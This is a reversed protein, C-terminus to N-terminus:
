PVTVLTPKGSVKLTISAALKDDIPASPEFGTIIAPFTWTSGDPWTIRYNTATTDDLDAVLMDHASPKYNVDFTIEGPDKLGGVFQRYGNPSDHASVDITERSLGPGSINSVNAIAVYTGPTAGERALITGFADIGAM